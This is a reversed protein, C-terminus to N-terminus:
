ASAPLQDRSSTPLWMRRDAAMMASPNRNFEPMHDLSQTSAPEPWPIYAHSHAFLHHFQAPCSAVSKTASKSRSSSCPGGHRRDSSNHDAGHPDSATGKKAAHKHSPKIELQIQNECKRNAGRVNECNKRRSKRPKGREKKWAKEVQSEM